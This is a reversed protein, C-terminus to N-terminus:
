DRHQSLKLQSGYSLKVPTMLLINLVSAIQKM